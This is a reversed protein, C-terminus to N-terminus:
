SNEPPVDEYNILGVSFLYISDAGEQNSDIIPGLENFFETYKQLVKEYAQKNLSFLKWSFRSSKVGYSHQMAAASTSYIYRGVKKIDEPSGKINVRHFKTKWFRGTWEILDAEELAKMTRKVDALPLKSKKSLFSETPNNQYSKLDLASLLAFLWPFDYFVKSRLQEQEIENKISPLKLHGTLIELFRLFDISGYDMLALM